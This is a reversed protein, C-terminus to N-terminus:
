EDKSSVFIFGEKQYEDFAFIVIKDFAIFERTNRRDIDDFITEFGKTVQM